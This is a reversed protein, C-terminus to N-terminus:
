KQKVQLVFNPSLLGFFGVSQASEIDKLRKQLEAHVAKCDDDTAGAARRRAEIALDQFQIRGEERLKWMDYLRLQSLLSTAIAALLPLAVLLYKGWAAFQEKDSLAALLTTAISVLFIAFQLSLYCCRCIAEHRVYWREFENEIKDAFRELAEQPSSM